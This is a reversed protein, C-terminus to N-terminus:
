TIMMLIISWNMMILHDGDECNQYSIIQKLSKEVTRKNIDNKIRKVEEM